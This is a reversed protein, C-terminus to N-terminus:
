ACSKLYSQVAKYEARDMSLGWQNKVRVQDTVYQCLYDKNSPVWKGADKDAKSANQSGKVAILNGPDNAFAVRAEQSWKDAGSEWAQKLPIIHDIQVKSASKKSFAITEGSYTDKLTGSIVTCGDSGKKVDSLDRALIDERTRCGNNDVDKWPTGFQAERDYTDGSREEEVPISELAKLAESPTKVEINTHPQPNGSSDVTSASGGTSSSGGGTSSQAVQYAYYIVCLLM